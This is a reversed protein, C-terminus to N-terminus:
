APQDQSKSAALQDTVKSVMRGRLVESYRFHLVDHFGDADLRPWAGLTTAFEFELRPNIGESLPGFDVKELALVAAVNMPDFFTLGGVKKM